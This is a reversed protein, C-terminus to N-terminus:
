GYLEFVCQQSEYGLKNTLNDIAEDIMQRWGCLYFRRGPEPEPYAEQYIQHVYGSVVPFDFDAPNLSPERSLAVSYSFGPMERLLTEFEERYLIDEERRCGFILHIGRHAIGQEHIYQIMSRFPAVGTGTCIFVLEQEISQPLTFTGDPGKFRITSGVAVEEFLYRTGAGQELQVICLELEDAKPPSAISYSRWRELRKKGIPLDMTIFQGAKFDLTSAESPELWFRRVSPSATEIKTITGDYWKPM